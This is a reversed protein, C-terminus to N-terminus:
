KDQNSEFFRDFGESIYEKLGGTPGKGLDMNKRWRKPEKYDVFPSYQGKRKKKPGM